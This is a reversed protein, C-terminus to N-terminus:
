LMGAQQLRWQLEHEFTREIYDLIGDEFREALVDDNLFSAASIVAQISAPERGAGKRRRIAVGWGPVVQFWARSLTIPKNKIVEITVGQNKSRRKMRKGVTRTQKIYGQNQVAGFYALSISKGKVVMEFSEYGKSREGAQVKIRPDLDKKKINWKERVINSLLTVAHRRTKAMTSYIAKKVAAESNMLASDLADSFMDIDFNLLKYDGSRTFNAM